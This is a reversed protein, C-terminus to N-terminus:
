TCIVGLIEADCARTVTYGYIDTIEIIGIGYLQVAPKFM